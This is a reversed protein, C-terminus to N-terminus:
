ETFSGLVDGYELDGTDLDRTKGTRVDVAALYVEDEEDSLRVMVEDANLWREVTDIEQAGDAGVLRRLKTVHGNRTDLTIVREDDAVALTRGDPSLAGGSIGVEADIRFRRGAVKIKTYLSTDSEMSEDIVRKGDDTVAMTWAGYTTTGKTFDLLPSDVGSQLFNVAFYRGNRSSAFEPDSGHLQIRFTKYKGTALDRVVYDNHTDLYAIRRGNQSVAVEPVYTGQHPKDAQAEDLRWEAGSTGVLRWQACEPPQRSDIPADSNCFGQYARSIPEDLREPLPDPQVDEATPGEATPTPDLESIPADAQQAAREMNNAVANAAVITVAVLTGASALSLATFVSRNILRRRVVLRPATQAVDMPVAAPLEAALRVLAPSPVPATSPAPPPPAMAWPNATATLVDAQGPAVWPSDAQPAGTPPEPTPDEAPPEPEEDQDFLAPHTARAQGTEQHLAGPWTGLLQAARDPDLGDHFQAVVAARGLPSIGALPFGAPPEAPAALYARYLAGLVAEAPRNWRYGPWRRGTTVLARIALHRAKEPDGTLLYASRAFWEAHDAAFQSLGDNKTM